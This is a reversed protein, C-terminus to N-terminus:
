DPAQTEVERYLLPTLPIVFLPVKGFTRGGVSSPCGAATALRRAMVM